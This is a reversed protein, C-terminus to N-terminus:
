LSEMQQVVEDLEQKSSLYKAQAEEYKHEWNEREQELSTLQRELGEARVDTLRLRPVHLTLSGSRM